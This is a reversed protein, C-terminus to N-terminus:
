KLADMFKYHMKIEEMNGKAYWFKGKCRNCVYRTEKVGFLSWPSTYIFRTEPELGYPNYEECDKHRHGILFCILRKM